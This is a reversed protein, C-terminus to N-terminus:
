GEVESIVVTPVSQVDHLRWMSLLVNMVNILNDCVYKIQQMM